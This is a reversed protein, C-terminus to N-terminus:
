EVARDDGGAKIENELEKIADRLRAAEEYNETNVATQLQQKMVMLERRKRAMGGTRKPAKGSHTVTGHVRRILPVLQSEFSEYCLACGLLGTDAFRNYPMGCGRCQVGAHTKQALAPGGFPESGLFSSLLQQLSLNPFGFSPEPMLRFGKERACVECYHSEQKVGNVIVTQHVSAARQGCNECLM